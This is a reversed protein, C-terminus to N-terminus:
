LGHEVALSAVAFLLRHMSALSYGRSAVVLSFKHLLLSGACGFIFVIIKFISRFSHEM